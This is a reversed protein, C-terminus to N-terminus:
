ACVAGKSSRVNTRLMWMLCCVVVQSGLELPDLAEEPEWLCWRLCECLSMFVCM